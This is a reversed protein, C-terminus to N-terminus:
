HSSVVPVVTVPVIVNNLTTVVSGNTMVSVSHPVGAYDTTIWSPSVYGTGVVTSAATGVVTASVVPSTSLNAVTSTGTLTGVSTHAISQYPAASVSTGASISGNFVSTITSPAIVPTTAYSFPAFLTVALVLLKKM